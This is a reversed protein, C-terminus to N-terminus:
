FTRSHALVYSKIANITFNQKLEPPVSPQGVDLQGLPDAQRGRRAQAPDLPQLFGADDGAVAGDDVRCGDPTAQLDEDGQLDVAGVQLRDLLQFGGQGAVVLDDFQAPHEATGVVEDADRDGVM